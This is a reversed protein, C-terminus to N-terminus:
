ITNSMVWETAVAAISEMTNVFRSIGNAFSGFSDEWISLLKFVLYEWRCRVKSTEFRVPFESKMQSSRSITSKIGKTYIYTFSLTFNKMDFDFYLPFFDSKYWSHTLEILHM